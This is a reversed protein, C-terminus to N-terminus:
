TRHEKCDLCFRTWPVANLRARSIPRGCDACIGYTGRRIRELAEEIARLLRSNTQRLRQRFEAEYAARAQDASDAPETGTDCKGLGISEQKLLEDRRATLLREWKTMEDDRM